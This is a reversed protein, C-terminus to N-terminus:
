SRRDFLLLSRLKRDIQVKTDNQDSGRVGPMGLAAQPLGEARSASPLKECSIYLALCMFM